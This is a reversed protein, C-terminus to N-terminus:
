EEGGEDFLCGDFHDGDLGGCDGCETPAGAEFREAATMEDWDM